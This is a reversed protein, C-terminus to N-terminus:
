PEDEVLLIEGAKKADYRIQKSSLDSGIRTGVRARMGYLNLAACCGSSHYPFKRFASAASSLQVLVVVNILNDPFFKQVFAM